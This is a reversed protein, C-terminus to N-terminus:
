GRRFKQGSTVRFDAVGRGEIVAVMGPFNGVDMALLGLPPVVRVESWNLIQSKSFHRPDGGIYIM